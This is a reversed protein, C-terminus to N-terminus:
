PGRHPKDHEHAIGYTAQARLAHVTAADDGDPDLRSASDLDGLCAEWQKAECAEAARSRLDEAQAEPTPPPSPAVVTPSPKPSPIGMDDKPRHHAHRLLASLFLALVLVILGDKAAQRLAARLKSVAVCVANESTGESAAIDGYSEGAINRFMWSAARRLGPSKEVFGSVNRLQYRADDDPPAVPVPHLASSVDVPPVDGDDGGEGDGSATGRYETEADTKPDRAPADDPKALRSRFWAKQHDKVNCAVITSLLKDVDDVAPGWTHRARWAEVLSQQVIDEAHRRPVRKSLVIGLLRHFVRNSQLHALLAAPPEVASPAPAPPAAPPPIELRARSEAPLAPGSAPPEPPVAFSSSPTRAPQTM